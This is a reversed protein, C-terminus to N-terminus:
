ENFDDHENNFNDVHTKMKGNRWTIYEEMERVVLFAPDTITSPGVRVHGQMILEHAHSIREAMKLHVMVCSLRRKALSSVSLKEVQSLGDLDHIVGLAYLKKLIRMTMYLRFPDDRDLTSIKNALHKLQGILQNYLIYEERNKMNFRRVVTNSHTSDSKWELFNTKKLLKQEHFKLQRM